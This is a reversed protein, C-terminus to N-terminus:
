KTELYDEPLELWCMADKCSRFVEYDVKSDEALASYVRALGYELDRDAIIATKSPQKIIDSVVMKRALDKLKEHGGEYRCNRLDYITNMEFRYDSDNIQKTVQDIFDDETVTGKGIVIVVKETTFINYNLSM